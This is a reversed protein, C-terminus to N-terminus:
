RCPCAAYKLLIGMLGSVLFPQHILYIEYSHRGLFALPRRLSLVKKLQEACIFVVWIGLFSIAVNVARDLFPVGTSLDYYHFYYSGVFYVAALLVTLYPSAVRLRGNGQALVRGATFFVIQVTTYSLLTIGSVGLANFV